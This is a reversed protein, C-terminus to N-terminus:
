GLAPSRTSSKGNVSNIIASVLADGISAEAITGPQSIAAELGPVADWLAGAVTLPKEGFTRTDIPQFRVVKCGSHRPDKQIVEFRRELSDIPGELAQFFYGVAWLLVGTIGERMNNPASQSQIAGLLGDIEDPALSSDSKSLFVLQYLDQNTVKKKCM